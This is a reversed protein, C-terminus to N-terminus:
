KDTLYILNEALDYIAQFLKLSNEQHYLNKNIEIPKEHYPIADMVKGLIYNALGKDNLITAVTKNPKDHIEKAIALAKEKFKLAYHYNFIVIKNAWKIM